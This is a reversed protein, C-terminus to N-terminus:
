TRYAITAIGGYTTASYSGTVYLTRGNPSLALAIAWDAKNGPGNYTRQWQRARTGISYAVTAYDTNCCQAPNVGTVYLTSSDPSVALIQSLLGYCCTEGVVRRTWAAAGTAANYAVASYRDLASPGAVIITRGNPTVAVSAGGGLAARSGRSRAAWSQAGTASNYAVTTAFAHSGTGPPSPRGRSGGTVYVSRGDPAVAIANAYDNGNAPGDYRSAWLRAGTAANYAVTLDDYLSTTSYGRGTVYVAGGDPSIAINRAQNNGITSKLRSAWRQAGTAADYGVTTYADFNRTVYDGGGSYGTVFVTKGDPSMVLAKAIAYGNAPAGYRRLWLQRGTSASYAITAYAAGSEAGTSTGTVFVTRGDPSVAIAAASDFSKGPGSYARAWLQRGTAADYGVTAYRVPAHHYRGWGTVFVASGDPSAAIAAPEPNTHPSGDYRSVWMQAGPVAPSGGSHRAHAAPTSGSGPAATTCGAAVMSAILGAATVAAPLRGGSSGRIPASM